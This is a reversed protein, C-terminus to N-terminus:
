IIISAYPWVFLFLSALLSRSFNGVPFGQLQKLWNINLSWVTIFLHLIALTNGYHGVRFIPCRIKLFFINNKIIFNNKFEPFIGSYWTFLKDEFSMFLEWDTM